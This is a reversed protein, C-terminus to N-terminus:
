AAAAATKKLLERKGVIDMASVIGEREMREMYRAALNYGILLKRQLGSITTNGSAQVYSVAHRYPNEDDTPTEPGTEAVGKASIDTCFHQVLHGHLERIANLTLIFDADSRAEKGDSSEQAESILKDDLKIRRIALDDTITAAGFGEIAARVQTPVMGGQLHAQVEDSDLPEYKIAISGPEGPYELRAEEAAMFPGVPERTLRALIQGAPIDSDAGLPTVPVSGVAERLRNLLEEALKHSPADVVIIGALRDIHAHVQRQKTFARPMMEAIIDDKLTLREKRFVKRGQDAEIQKVKDALAKNISAAPIIREEITLCFQSGGSLERIFTDSDEYIPSWGRSEPQMPACPTFAGAELMEQTPTAQEAAATSSLQYIMANKYIM